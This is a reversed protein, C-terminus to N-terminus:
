CRQGLVVGDDHSDDQHSGSTDDDDDDGDGGDHDDGDDDVVDDDGVLRIAEDELKGEDSLRYIQALTAKPNKALRKYAGSVQIGPIV